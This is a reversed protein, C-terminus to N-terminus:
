FVLREGTTTVTSPKNQGQVRDRGGWLVLEEGTWVAAGYEHVEGSPWDAIAKWTNGAVDYSAGNTALEGAGNLSIQGGVVAVVGPRVTFAVGSRRVALLRASPAGSTPVTTWSNGAMYKGDNRLGNEDRGGWVIFHSGDWVGFGGSRASVGRNLNVWHDANIDYSFAKDQRGNGLYGGDLYLAAGNFALAPGSLAGPDGSNTAASWRGAELRDSGALAGNNASIGGWFVARTGDWVGFSQARRTASSGLSTWTKKLPDYAAADRQTNNGSADVGGYVIVTSGTWVATAMSRPSPMGTGRVVWVWSDSAPSYIAGTDLADDNADLGGWIFVAQGMATSAARTRAVFGTPPDAMNTWGVTCASASCTRGANCSHGCAGCNQEDTATDVCSAGCCTQFESCANDCAAAPGAGGVGPDNAAGALSSGGDSVSTGGGLDAGGSSPAEGGDDSTASGATPSVSGGSGVDQAGGEGASLRYPDSLACSMLSAALGISLWTAARVTM